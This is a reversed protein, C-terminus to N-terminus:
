SVKLPKNYTVVETVESDIPLVGPLFKVRRTIGDEGRDEVVACTEVPVFGMPQRAKFTLGEWVQAQTLKPETSAPNIPLTAAFQAKM